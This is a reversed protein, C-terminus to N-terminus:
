MSQDSGKKKKKAKNGGEHQRPLFARCHDLILFSVTRKQESCSGKRTHPFYRKGDLHHKEGEAERFVDKGKIEGQEWERGLM